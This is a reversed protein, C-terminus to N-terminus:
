RGWANPRFGGHGLWEHMALVLEALRVADIHDADYEQDHEVIAQALELMEKLNANPDM